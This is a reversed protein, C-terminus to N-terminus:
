HLRVGVGIAGLRFSDGRYKPIYVSRVSALLSVHNVIPKALDLRVHMAGVGRSSSRAVAPGVLFRVGGNATEWGALMSFVWFKPFEPTCTGGPLADCSVEGVGFAQGSGSVAIVFGGAAHARARPRFGLVADASLGASSGHPASSGGLGAGVNVDFSVPSLRQAAGPSVRSIALVACCILVRRLARLIRSWRDHRADRNPDTVLTAKM